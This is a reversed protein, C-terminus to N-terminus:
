YFFANFDAYPFGVSFGTLAKGQQSKDTIEALMVKIPRDTGNLLTIPTLLCSGGVLVCKWTCRWRMKYSDDGLLIQGNWVDSDFYGHRCHWPSHSAQPRHPRIPVFMSASQHCFIPKHAFIPHILINLHEIGVRCFALSRSYPSSSALIFAWVSRTM